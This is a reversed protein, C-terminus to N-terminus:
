VSGKIPRESKARLARRMAIVVEEDTVPNDLRLLRHIKRLAFLRRRLTASSLTLAQETIFAAVTEPSAPFPNIEDKDCWAEFARLDVRYARLTGEAYAGELRHM